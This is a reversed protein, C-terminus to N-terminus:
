RLSNNVPLSTDNALFSFPEKSCDKYVKLFDKFKIDSSHNLTKQQLERKNSTKMFFIIGLM